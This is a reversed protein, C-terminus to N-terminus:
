LELYSATAVVSTYGTLTATGDGNGNGDNKAFFDTGVFYEIYDEDNVDTPTGAILAWNTENGVSGLSTIKYKKNVEFSGPSVDPYALDPSAIMTIKDGEDLIIKETDFSFTEGARLELGNIVMNVMSRPTGGKIFHMDVSVTGVTEDTPDPDATNCIMIATIAYRKPPTFGTPVILLETPTDSIQKNDISM